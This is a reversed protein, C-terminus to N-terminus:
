PRQRLILMQGTRELQLRGLFSMGLLVQTPERGEVVVAEIDNLTIAGAKVERLVVQYGRAQGSATNVNVVRHPGRFDVGLREAQAESMAVTNAGTDVLFDTTIGNISGSVSYLGHGDPWATVQPVNATTFHTGIHDALTYRRRHGCIELTAEQSNADVLRVGEPSAQGASLLRQKGDIRLLAKDKFLGLVQIDTVAEAVPAVVLLLSLSLAITLDHSM